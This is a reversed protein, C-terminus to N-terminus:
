EDNLMAPLGRYMQVVELLSTIEADPAIDAAASATGTRNVWIGAIGAQRAGRIDRTLDNGVMVAQTPPVGLRALTHAFIRPDPKGIGVEGSVTVITFYAILGVGELKERQLYPAGNTVIALRYRSQLERLVADVEPFARHRARREAQFTEALQEALHMDRVGYAALANAWADRRYIPAWARLTKVQPASGLFHAWLGEVSGLGIARCYAFTPAARWLERACHRVTRVLAHPELGYRKQPEVCTALLAAEGAAEDVVLTDDLDFLIAATAM